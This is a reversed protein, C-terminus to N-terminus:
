LPGLFFLELKNILYFQFLLYWHFCRLYLLPKKFFRFWPHFISAQMLDQALYNCPSSVPHPQKNKPTWSSAQPFAPVGLQGNKLKGRTHRRNKANYFFFWLVLFRLFCSFYNTMFESVKVLIIRDCQHLKPTSPLPIYCDYVMKHSLITKHNLIMQGNLPPFLFLWSSLLLLFVMRLLPVPGHFSYQM